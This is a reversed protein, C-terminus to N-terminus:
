FIPNDLRRTSQGRNSKKLPRVSGGPQRASALHAPQDV